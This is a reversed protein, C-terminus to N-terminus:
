KNWIWNVVIVFKRLERLYKIHNYIEQLVFETTALSYNTIKVRRLKESTMSLLLEHSIMCSGASDSPSPLTLESMNDEPTATQETDLDRKKQGMVFSLLDIFTGM